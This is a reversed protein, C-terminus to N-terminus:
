GKLKLKYLHSFSSFVSSDTFKHLNQYLITYSKIYNKRSQQTNKPGNSGMKVKMGLTDHGPWGSSSAQGGAVEMASKEASRAGWWKQEGEVEEQGEVVTM